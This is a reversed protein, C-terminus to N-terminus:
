YEKWKLGYNDHILDLKKLLVATIDCLKELKKIAEDKYADKLNRAAKAVQLCEVTNNHIVNFELETVPIIISDEEYLSDESGEAGFPDSALISLAEKIQKKTPM